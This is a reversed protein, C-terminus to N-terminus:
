LAAGMNVGVNLNPVKGTTASDMSKVVGKPSNLNINVDTRSSSFTDVSGGLNFLDTVPSAFDKVSSVISDKLSRLKGIVADIKNSVYSMANDWIDKVFQGMDRWLLKAGGVIDEWRTAWLFIATIMLGVAAVFMLIPILLGGITVGLAMAAFQLAAFAMILQGIVLVVPGLFTLIKLFIVIWKTAEPHLKVFKKMGETSKEIWGTLDKVLDKLNTEEIIVKGIEMLAVDASDKLNSFLGHLTQSLTDTMRHFRGRESTLDRLVEFFIKSTIKGKSVADAIQQGTVGFKKALIPQLAVGKEALQLMEEGQVRGKSMIKGYILSFEKLPKGTGAALDGLQGIVDIVSGSEVGFAMLQKASDMVGQLQFPTNKTYEIINKITKNAEDTDGILVNMATTMMELDAARKVALGGMATLPGSLGLTIGKGVDMVGKGFGKLDKQAERFAQSQNKVRNKIADIKDGLSSMQAKIMRAPSSIMDVLKFIYTVKNSM